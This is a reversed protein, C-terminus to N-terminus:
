SRPLADEKEQLFSFLPDISEDTIHRVIAPSRRRRVVLAAGLALALVVAIALIVMWAPIASDNPKQRTAALRETLSRVQEQLSRQDAAAERAATNLVEIRTENRRLHFRAARLKGKLSDRKDFLKAELATRVITIRGFGLWGITSSRCPDNCFSVAYNASAIDPATFSVSGTAYRYGDEGDTVPGFRVVGLRMAGKPIGPPDIMGYRNGVLLYAYYPGDEIRGTNKLRNVAFAGRLLATQGPLYHDRQPELSDWGGASATPALVGLLGGATMFVLLTGIRRM